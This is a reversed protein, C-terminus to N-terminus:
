PVESCIYDCDSPCGYTYCGSYSSCGSDSGCSDSSCGDTPCGGGGGVAQWLLYIQEGINYATNGYMTYAGANNVVFSYDNASNYGAWLYLGTSLDDPEGSMGTMEDSSQLIQRGYEDDVKFDGFQFSNGNCVLGVKQGRLLNIVGQSVTIGDKNWRGIVQGSPNLIKLDGYANDTGGLSLQGDITWSNYYPGRVGSSSFGIGDKNLQLVNRATAKNDTDMILIRYPLEREDPDGDNTYDLVVHGGLGGSVFQSFRSASSANSAATSTFRTITDHNQGTLTKLKTTTGITVTDQAPDALHMEKESLIATKSIGHPVSVMTTAGGLKFREINANIAALDVASVKVTEPLACVEALYTRAKALLAAPTEITDWTVTAWIWGYASVATQDYIYDLGNNVSTIDVVAGNDLKKGLPIIATKLSEASQYKSLDLLNKGFQIPQTNATAYQTVYDLYTTGGSHRIRIYGRTQAIVSALADMCTSYEEDEIGISDSVNVTGLQIKKRNEVQSNHETLIKNLLFTLNGSYGYPRMITDNLYALCGECTYFATNNWDYEPTLARGTFALSGDIYLRIISVMPSIHDRNPHTSPLGFSLEPVNNLEEKFVPDLVPLEEPIMSNAIAYVTGNTECEIKYTM